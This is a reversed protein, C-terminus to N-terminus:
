LHEAPPKPDEKADLALPTLIGATGNANLSIPSVLLLAYDDRVPAQHCEARRSQPQWHSTQHSHNTESRPTNTLVQPINPTQEHIQM